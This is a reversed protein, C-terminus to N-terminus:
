PVRGSAVTAPRGGLDATAHQGWRGQLDAFGQINYHRRLAPEYGERLGDRLFQAFTQPGRLGCLYDVLSVSQAYFASIRRAPPYDSLQMLERVAFLEGKCKALNRRHQERKEAPETLVAMGEDAWRPVAYKGFQGALVAHTAEHPLVATLLASPNECHLHIVRSVVRGTGPDAEIRSHGPSNTAQGTVRGYDQATAHLYIDCKPSWAEGRGFWKRQMDVRTREAARAVQEALERPQKHLIRFSATEAVEWGRPDRALHRVAVDVAAPAASKGPAGRRSDIEGLLWKGTKELSPALAMATRVERELEPWPCHQADTNNIEAVVRQLKCYAWREHCGRTVTADARNAEDYLKGAATYRRRAFEEEARALLASARSGTLPSVAQNSVDFPDLKGRAKTATGGAAPDGATGVPKYYGGTGSALAAPVPAPQSPQSGPAAAAPAQARPPDAASNTELIKLRAAYKQALATQNGVSLEQIYARYANRLVNLYKRNVNVRPLQAELVEVAKAPQRQMLYMEAQLTATQALLHSEVTGDADRAPPDAALRPTYVFPAACLLAVLGIRAM